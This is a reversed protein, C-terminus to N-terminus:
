SRKTERLFTVALGILLLVFGPVVIYISPDRSVQLVSVRLNKEDYGSQYFRWGKWAGPRNVRLDTELVTRGQESLALKSEFQRIRGPRFEYELGVEGTRAGHFDPHRAFLFRRDTSGGQRVLVELCPNDPADDRSAPGSPGLVFNPFYRLPTVSLDLPPFPVPVDLVSPRSVVLGDERRVAHLLHRDPEWYTIRFDKLTITFPLPLERGDESFYADRGQGIELEVFGRQALGARVLGGAIILLVAAHTLFIGPRNAITRWRKATCAMLNVALLGLIGRFVWSDFIPVQLFIGGAISAALVLGASLYFLALSSLLDIIKKM